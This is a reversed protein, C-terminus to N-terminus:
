PWIVRGLESLAVGLPSLEASTLDYVCPTALVMLCLTVALMRKM